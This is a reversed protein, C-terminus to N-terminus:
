YCQVLQLAKDYIVTCKSVLVRIVNNQSECPCMIGLIISPTKMTHVMDCMIAKTLVLHDAHLPPYNDSQALSVTISLAIYDLMSLYNVMDLIQPKIPM